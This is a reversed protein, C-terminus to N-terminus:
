PQWFREILAQEAEPTWVHGPALRAGMEPYKAELETVETLPLGSLQPFIVVKGPYRSESVARIGEQASEIGGVAAVALNPSLEHALTKRIVREQDALASGSTGTFQANHLFVQSLNLPVHTGIAVGAFLVLMGDSAMLTAVEGILAGSPVCVIVDDAGLGSTERMVLDRLPEGAQEPNFVLLRKGHKEALPKFRKELLRLRVDNVDTAILVHPGSAMEIARQTHMQGMPGGAGAVLMVGGPRLECRNRAEGYSAAIDPGLNGLYATYDYHIRGVDIVPQGDLPERGVLNLIGRRAILKAAEGVVHASRPDLMVIDDFGQDGTLDQKLAAYGEPSIGYRVILRANAQQEVFKLLSEPIDTLVITAPADLGSSFRYPAADMPRGVIWMIGGAKPTLRRRQTYAAEVCAWPETLAAEAYGVEERIPFVYTVHENDLIEPGMLHYQTLAGPITYGYATSKGQQYIDPQIVLRQGPYYKGQLGNGVKMVTVTAEHGLRTPDKRLDRNYLKPHQNGQRVVKVDSFCLSAADVRVLLQDGGPEPMAFHEPKGEFGVNELGAGYLNWTWTGRPIPGGSSRYREFSTSVPKAKRISGRAISCEGRRSLARPQPLERAKM